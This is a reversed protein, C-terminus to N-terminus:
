NKHRWPGVFSTTESRTIAEGKGEDAAVVDDDNDPRTLIKISREEFISIEVTDLFRKVHGMIEDIELRNGDRASNRRKKKEIIFDFISRPADCRM